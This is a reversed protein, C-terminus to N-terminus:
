ANGFVQGSVVVFFSTSGLPSSQCIKLKKKREVKKREKWVGRLGARL